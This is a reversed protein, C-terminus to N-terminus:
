TSGRLDRGQVMNGNLTATAVGDDTLTAVFESARAALDEEHVRQEESGVQVDPKHGLINISWTM